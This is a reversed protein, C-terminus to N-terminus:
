VFGGAHAANLLPSATETFHPLYFKTLWATAPRHHLVDLAPGYAAYFHLAFPSIMFLIECVIVIYFAWAAPRLLREALSGPATAMSGRRSANCQGHWHRSRPCGAPSSRCRSSPAARSMGCHLM